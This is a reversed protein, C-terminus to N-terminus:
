AICRGKSSWLFGFFGTFPSVRFFFVISFRSFSLIHIFVLSLHLFTSSFQHFAIFIHQLYVTQHTEKAYELFSIWIERREKRQNTEKQKQCERTTIHTIGEEM